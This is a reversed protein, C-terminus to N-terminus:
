YMVTEDGFRMLQGPMTVSVVMCSVIGQAEFLSPLSNPVRCLTSTASMRADCEQLLGCSPSPATDSSGPWSRCRCRCRRQRRPTASPRSGPWRRRPAPARREVRGRRVREVVRVIAVQDRLPPQQVGVLLQEVAARRVAQDPAVRGARRPETAVERRGHHPHAANADQCPAAPLDAAVAPSHVLKSFRKCFPM